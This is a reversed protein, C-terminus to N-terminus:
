KEGLKVITEFESKALPVISLRNGKQLIRMKALSKCEKMEALTVVRKFKKKYAVDVLFWRPNEPDSKPDPHESNPDFQTPDPYAASAVKMIGVAGIVKTNSHYFIVLDGVAMEDRMMNRAQYNRVGDWPERKDRKLDDISYCSPESKM